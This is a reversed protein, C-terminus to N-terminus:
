LLLRALSLKSLLSMVNPCIFKVGSAIFPAFCSLISNEAINLKQIIKFNFDMWLTMHPCYYQSSSLLM